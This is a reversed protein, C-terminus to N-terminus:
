GRFRLYSESRNSCADRHGRRTGEIEQVEGPSLWANSGTSELRSLRSCNSAVGFGSWNTIRSRDGFLGSEGCQSTMRSLLGVCSEARAQVVLEFELGAAQSQGISEAGGLGMWMAVDLYGRPWRCSGSDDRGILARSPLRGTPVLRM